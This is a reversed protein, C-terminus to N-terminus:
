QEYIEGFCKMGYGSPLYISCISSVYPKGLLIRVAIHHEVFVFAITQEDSPSM